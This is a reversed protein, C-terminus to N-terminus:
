CLHKSISLEPPMSVPNGSTHRVGAGGAGAGTGTGYGLTAVPGVANPAAYLTRMSPAGTCVSADVTGIDLPSLAPTAVPTAEPVTIPGARWTVAANVTTMPPAGAVRKVLTAM